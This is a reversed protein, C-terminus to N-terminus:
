VTEVNRSTEAVVLCDSEVREATGGGSALAELPPFTM